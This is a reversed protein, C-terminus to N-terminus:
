IGTKVAIHDGDGIQLTANPFKEQQHVKQLCTGNTWM